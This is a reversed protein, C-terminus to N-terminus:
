WTAHLMSHGYFMDTEKNGINCAIKYYWPLPKDLLLTAVNGNEGLLFM